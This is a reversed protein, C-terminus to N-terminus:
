KVGILKNKKENYEERTIQGSELLWDGYDTEANSGDYDVNERVFVKRVTGFLIKIDMWLSCGSVYTIDAKLKDEWSLANRGSIQALGTLGPRVNWRATYPGALFVMDQMLLPRPGIVSMDGKIINILEPIEDLSTNRLWTGFKCMRMADPLLNGNEDREDTMTRFKYLCFEKEDAGARMQKFLVPTGMKWRVLVALVLLVPSLVALALLSLIFDLLRKFCKAYM